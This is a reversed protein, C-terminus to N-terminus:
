LASATAICPSSEGPAANRCFGKLTSSSVSRSRSASSCSCGYDSVGAEGGTTVTGCDGSPSASGCQRCWTLGPRATERSARITCKRGSHGTGYM